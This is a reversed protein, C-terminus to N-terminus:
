KRIIIKGQNVNRFINNVEVSEIVYSPCSCPGDDRFKIENIKIVQNDAELKIEYYYEPYLLTGTGNSDEGFKFESNAGIHIIYNMLEFENFTTDVIINSNVDNLIKFQIESLDTNLYCSTDSELVCFEISLSSYHNINPRACPPEICDENERCSVILFLFIFLSVVRM